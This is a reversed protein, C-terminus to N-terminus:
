FVEFPNQLFISGVNPSFLPLSGDDVKLCIKLFSLTAIIMGPRFLPESRKYKHNGRDQIQVQIVQVPDLTIITFGFIFCRILLFLYQTPAMHILSMCKVCFPPSFLYEEFFFWKSCVCKNNFLNAAFMNVLPSPTMLRLKRRQAEKRSGCSEFGTQSISINSSPNIKKHNHITEVILILM